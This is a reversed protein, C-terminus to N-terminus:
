GTVPKFGTATVVLINFLDPFHTYCFVSGLTLRATKLLFRIDM